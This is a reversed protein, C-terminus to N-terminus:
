AAKNVNPVHTAENRHRGWKQNANLMICRLTRAALFPSPRSIQTCYFTDLSNRVRSTSYQRDRSHKPEQSDNSCEIIFDLVNIQIHVRRERHGGQTWWVDNVHYTNGLEKESSKWKRINYQICVSSCFFPLLGPLSVLVHTCLANKIGCAM